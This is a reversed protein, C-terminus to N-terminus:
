DKNHDSSTLKKNLPAALTASMQSARKNAGTKGTVKRGLTGGATKQKTVKLPVSAAVDETPVPPM